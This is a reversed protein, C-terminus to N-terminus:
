SFSVGPRRRSLAAFSESFTDLSLKLPLKIGEAQLRARVKSFLERAYPRMAGPDFTHIKRRILERAIETARDLLDDYSYKLDGGRRKTSWWALVIRWDDNLQADGVNRPDYSEFDEIKSVEKLPFNAALLEMDPVKARSGATTITRPHRILKVQWSKPLAKRHEHDLSLIFKGKIEGLVKILRELDEDDFKEREQSRDPYPPDLYFFTQPSDFKRVIPEFDSDYIKVGKLREKSKPIRSLTNLTRGESGTDFSGM